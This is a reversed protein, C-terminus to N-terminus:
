FLLGSYYLYPNQKSVIVSVTPHQYQYLKVFDFAPTKNTCIVTMTAILKVEHCLIFSYYLLRSSIKKM